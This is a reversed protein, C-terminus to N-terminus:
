KNEKFSKKIVDADLFYILSDFDKESCFKWVFKKTENNESTVDEMIFMKCKGEYVLFSPTLSLLKSAVFKGNSPWGVRCTPFTYPFEKVDYSVNNDIAVNKWEVYKEKVLLLTQRFHVLDRSTVALFTQNDAALIFTLFEASEEPNTAMISHEEDCSVYSGIEKIYQGQAMISVLCLILATCLKKM